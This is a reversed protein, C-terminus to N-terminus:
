RVIRLQITVIKGNLIQASEATKPQLIFPNSDNRPMWLGM